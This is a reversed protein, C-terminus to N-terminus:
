EERPVATKAAPAKSDQDETEKKIFRKLSFTPTRDSVRGSHHSHIKALVVHMESDAKKYSAKALIVGGDIAEQVADVFISTQIWGHFHDELTKQGIKVQAVIVILITFVFMKVIFFFDRIM